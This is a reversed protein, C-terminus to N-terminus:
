AAPLLTAGLRLQRAARPGRAVTFTAELDALLTDVAADETQVHAAHHARARVLLDAALVRLGILTAGERTLADQDLATVVAEAGAAFVATLGVLAGLSLVAEDSRSQIHGFRGLLHRFAGLLGFTGVADELDRFPLAMLDYATGREGLLADAPLHCDLTINCHRSPRLAHFGPMETLTLGPTDRPVLFAGYRKRGTADEDTIALVIIVEASPGNSVWAKEGELHWGGPQETARTRLHKPHAGVKPESIAVSAAHGRWRALQEPTAFRDLFARGVVQRGAWVSGVGILGTRETLAAKTFAIALYSEFPELLGAEEMGAFPDQAPDPCHAQWIDLREAIDM